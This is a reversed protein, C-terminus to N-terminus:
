LSERLCRLQEEGLRIKDELERQEVILASTMKVYHLYDQLQEDNLYKSITELVVQERRTVHVKLEQADELQDTLQKKKDLLNMKAEMSPMPDECNLASEVRSLRGSLSLLLSVVKDLDGIFIRFKDYENPKCINKLLNKLEQGLTENANIDEQLGQQAEHLVSLKKSISEILQLKKSTLENEEDEEETVYGAKDKMRNLLDAKAASLNYYTAGTTPSVTGCLPTLSIPQFEEDREPISVESEIDISWDDESHRFEEKFIDELAPFHQGGRVGTSLPASAMSESCFLEDLNNWGDTERFKSTALANQNPSASPSSEQSRQSASSIESLEKIHNIGHFPSPSLNSAVKPSTRDVPLSQSHQRPVTSFESESREKCYFFESEALQNTAQHEKYKEWNPPPPRPPKQKKSRTSPKREELKTTPFEIKDRLALYELDLHSVSYTRNRSPELHGAQFFVFDKPRILNERSLDYTSTAKYCESREHSNEKCCQKTSGPHQIGPPFNCLDSVSQSNKKCIDLHRQNSETLPADQLMPKRMNMQDVHLFSSEELTNCPTPFSCHACKAWRHHHHSQLHHCHCSHHAVLINRKLLAPCCDNSCFMCARFGYSLSPLHNTSQTEENCCMPPEIIHNRCINCLPLRWDQQRLSTNCHTHDVSHRRIDPVITPSLPRDPISTNFNPKNDVTFTPGKCVDEFFKRRDAFPMLINEDCKTPPLLEPGIEKETFFITQLKQEPSLSWKAGNKPNHPSFHKGESFHHMSNLQAASSLDNSKRAESVKKEQGLDAQCNIKRGTVPQENTFHMLDWERYSDISHSNMYCTNDEHTQKDLIEMPLQNDRTKKLANTSFIDPSKNEEVPIKLSGIGDQTNCVEPKLQFDTTSYSCEQEINKPHNIQNKQPFLSKQHHTDSAKSKWCENYTKNEATLLFGKDETLDESTSRIKEKIIHKDTDMNKDILEGEMKEKKYYDKSSRCKETNARKIELVLAKNKPPPPPPPPPIIEPPSVFEEIKDEASEECSLLVKCDKSKQLQAKRTQIENRLNTAFRESKRRMQASRHRSAGPKKIPGVTEEQGCADQTLTNSISTSTLRDVYNNSQSSPLDNLMTVSRELSSCIHGIDSPQETSRHQSMEISRKEIEETTFHFDESSTPKVDKRFSVQTGSMNTQTCHHNLTKWHECGSNKVVQPGEQLNSYNFIETEKDDELWKLKTETSQNTKEVDNKVIANLQHAKSTQSSLMYYQDSSLNETLHRTCPVNSCQCITNESSNFHAAESSWMGSMHFLDCPYSTRRDSNCFEAKNERLSDRRIPPQPPSQRSIDVQSEVAGQGTQLYQGDEPKNSGLFCNIPSSGDIRSSMTYDSIKSSTSFSSYASDRKNQYMGTDLRSITGEFYNQGPLDLSEMSGISSSIDTSDHRSLVNWQLPQESFCFDVISIENGSHWSMSFADSPYQMSAVDPHVESLKALHWSHPRAVLLSRRRVIMKLIRYSGKILILAEQRSGHLPTGNINVLEDGVEIKECKAAKGENELKSIILPGGHELGGLLTFGWPAGGQLQVHVYQLPQLIGDVIEPDM